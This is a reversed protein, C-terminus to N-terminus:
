IWREKDLPESGVITRTMAANEMRKGLGFDTLKLFCEDGNLYKDNMVLVNELKIDRHCIGNTHLYKDASFIQKMM